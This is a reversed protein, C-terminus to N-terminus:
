QKGGDTDDFMMITGIFGLLLGILWCFALGVTGGLAAIVGMILLALGRRNTKNM